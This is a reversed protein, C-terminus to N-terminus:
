PVVRSQLDATFRAIATGDTETPSWAAFETESRVFPGEAVELLVFLPTRVVLTHFRGADTRYYRTGAEGDSMRVCERVNGLDDFLVLDATGQLAILSEGRVLHRHPRVYGRADLAILMQQVPDSQARHLCIRARMRTTKVAQSKLFEIEEAGVSVIPDDAFFVEDNVRRLKM